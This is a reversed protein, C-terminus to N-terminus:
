ITAVLILLVVSFAVIAGIVQFFRDFGSAQPKQNKNQIIQEQLLDKILQELEARTMNSVLKLDGKGSALDREVRKLILEVITILEERSLNYIHLSDELLESPLKPEIHTGFEKIVLRAAEPLEAGCNQCFKNETKNRKGCQPCIVSEDEVQQSYLPIFLGILLSLFIIFSVTSNKRSM